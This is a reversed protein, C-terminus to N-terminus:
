AGLITHERGVAVLIGPNQQETSELDVEQM